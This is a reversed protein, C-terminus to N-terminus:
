TCAGNNTTTVSTRGTASVAIVREQSGVLPSSQCITVTTATVGVGTPDFRLVAVAPSTTTMSFGTSLATQRQIVAEGSDMADNNNADHFVVWGQSWNGSACSVGDVSVCMLVRANRKIAESRALYTSVVFDNAYSRLKSSLIMDRFSPIGIALLVALVAITVLLEILSFGQIRSKGRGALIGAQPAFEMASSIMM